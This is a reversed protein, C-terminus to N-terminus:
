IHMDPQYEICYEKFTFTGQAREDDSKVSVGAYKCLGSVFWENIAASGRTYPMALSFLYSFQTILHKAVTSNTTRKLTEYIFKLRMVHYKADIHRPHIVSMPARELPVLEDFAYMVGRTLIDTNKFRVEVYGIRLTPNLGPRKIEDLIATTLRTDYLLKGNERGNAFEFMWTSPDGKGNLGRIFRYIPTGYQNSVTHNLKADKIWENVRMVRHRYEFEDDLEVFVSTHNLSRISAIFYNRMRIYKSVPTFSTATNSKSIFRFEKFHESNLTNSVSAIKYRTTGLEVLMKEFSMGRNINACVFHPMQESVRKFLKDGVPGGYMVNNSMDIM